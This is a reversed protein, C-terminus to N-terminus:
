LERIVKAPNGGVVVNAPVDKIIVSGAAAVVNDGITVGPCVIVGGGLWVNNGISIPKGFEIGEVVRAHADVSHGATYIQVHPGFMVNDGIRVECVDLVTCNFNAYFDKGVKINYGYDCHFPPEIYFRQKSPILQQLAKRWEATNPISNNLAQLVQRCRIREQFLTDDWAQYPEGALMKEKESKMPAEM